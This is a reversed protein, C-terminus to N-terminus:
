LSRRENLKPRPVLIQQQSIALLNSSTAQKGVAVTGGNPVSSALRGNTQEKRQFLIFLEGDAVVKWHPSERLVSAIPVDPSVLVTDISFRNLDLEWDHRANLIHVYKTMLDDGYFDSRGDMFVRQSPFFQYILYDAWQDTTFLRSAHVAELSPIAKVPFTKPNFRSEFGPGGSTLAFALLVVAAASAVHWREIRELPQFDRAIEGLMSRKRSKLWPLLPARNLADQCTAAMWPAALLLFIPVNRVSILSLHVWLLVNIAAAYYGGRVCWFVSAV